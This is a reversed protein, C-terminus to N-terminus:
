LYIGSGFRYVALSLGQALSEQILLVDLVNNSLLSQQALYAHRKLLPGMVKHPHKRLLLQCGLLKCLHIPPM